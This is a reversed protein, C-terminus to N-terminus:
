VGLFELFNWPASRRVGCEFPESAELSLKIAEMFIMINLPGWLKIQGPAGVPRFRARSLPKDILTYTMCFRASQPEEKKLEMITLIFQKSSQFVLTKRTKRIHM